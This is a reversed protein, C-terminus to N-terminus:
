GNRCLSELSRVIDAVAAVSLYIPRNGDFVTVENPGTREAVFKRGIFFEAKTTPLVRRTEPGYRHPKTTM